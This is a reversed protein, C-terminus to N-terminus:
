REALAILAGALAIAPLSVAPLQWDWDISAHLLWALLAASLGAAAARDRRLAERAAAATGGILLALTLLGVLGLEAAMEFEISHTDRVSEDVDRQKLWLVRFGAAGVGRLPHDRFGILAVRWYDYRNSSVNTLRAAGATRAIDTPSAKEGLGGVILGAAVLAVVCVAAPRVARTWGPPGEPEPARSRWGVLAALGALGLLVLLVIAGDRERRTGELSAVGAFASSCAAAVIGFGVAAVSARLQARTLAFAVVVLLGVAAAALAGRSYALYVGTALPVGCAAALARM